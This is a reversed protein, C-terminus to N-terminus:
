RRNRIAVLGDFDRRMLRAALEKLSGNWFWVLGCMWYLSLSAPANAARM